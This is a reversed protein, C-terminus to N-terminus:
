FPQTRRKPAGFPDGLNDNQINDNAGSDRLVSSAFHIDTTEIAPSLYNKKM